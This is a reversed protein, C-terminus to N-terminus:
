RCSCSCLCFPWYTPGNELYSAADADTTGERTRSNKKTEGSGLGLEWGAKSVVQKGAQEEREEFDSGGGREKVLVAAATRM